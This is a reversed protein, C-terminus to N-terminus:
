SQVIKDRIDQFDRKAQDEHVNFKQQESMLKDELSKFRDKMSEIEDKALKEIDVVSKEVEKPDFDKIGALVSNCNKVTERM